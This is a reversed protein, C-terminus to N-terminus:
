FLESLRRLLRKHWLRTYLINNPGKVDDFINVKLDKYARFLKSDNYLQNHLYVFCAVQVDEGKEEMLGKKYYDRVKVAPHLQSRKGPLVNVLCKPEEGETESLFVNISDETWQKLEIIAFTEENRSLLVDIRKTGDEGKIQIPYEIDICLDEFPLCTEEEEMLAIAKSLDDRQKKLDEIIKKLSGDELVTLGTELSKLADIAKDDLAKNINVIDGSEKLSQYAESNLLQCLEKSPSFSLLSSIKEDIAKILRDSEEITKQCYLDPQYLLQAFDSLSFHWSAYESDNSFDPLNRARPHLNKYIAACLDEIHDERSMEYFSRCDDFHFGTKHDKMHVSM